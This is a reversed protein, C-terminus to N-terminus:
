SEDARAAANEAEKAACNKCVCAVGRAAEPLRDLTQKGITVNFCWCESRGATMGCENQAGCLPCRSPDLTNESM